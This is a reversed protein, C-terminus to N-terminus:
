IKVGGYFFYPMIAQIIEPQIEKPSKIIKFLKEKKSNEIFEELPTRIVHFLYSQENWTFKTNKMHILVSTMNLRFYNIGLIIKFSGDKEINNVMIVRVVGERGEKRFISSYTCNNYRDWGFTWKLGYNNDTM